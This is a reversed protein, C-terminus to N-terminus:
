GNYLYIEVYEMSNVSMSIIYPSLVSECEATNCKTTSHLVSTGDSIEFAMKFYNRRFDVRSMRYRLGQDSSEM